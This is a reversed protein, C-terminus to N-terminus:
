YTDLPVAGPNLVLQSCPNKWVECLPLESRVASEFSAHADTSYWVKGTASDTYSYLPVIDDPLKSVSAVTYPLAYFVPTASSNPQTTQLMETYGQKIHTEVGYVPILSPLGHNQPMAYFPVSRIQKWWNNTVVGQRQAYESGKGTVGVSYVPEPLTLRPDSLDLSYMLQNYNYRPTIDTVNSFTNTYTGQFYILRGNDQDLFPLQTPNYFTYGGHTAIKKAYLWPGVPTDAESFWVEGLFSPSGYAQTTIMIWRNLYANWYVSGGDSLVRKNTDVDHLATIREDARMKGDKILANAQDEGLAMTNKKWGWVLHGDANRDLLTNKGEYRGGPQLCTFSEFKAADRVDAANAVVRVLPFAGMATSQFYLYKIGHDMAMFPHGEPRLGDGTPYTCVPVFVAKKDNFEALGDIAISMDHRVEAFNTYLHTEGKSSLTFLGGVWIPGPPNPIPIMPRSFGDAGVWYKLNVGQSPDLGGRGPLRSTAGSTAFQGLPYSPRQTDGFFWYIRNRYPTVEVTDQGMVKGDLLPHKLPTSTGTLISDRYIGGGTMRYLREAINVRQLRIVASTGAIVKLAIGRYGFSDKPYKYGPSSISFYISHGLLDPDNIAIVGNSDTYYRIDNVTRLEVLPVGRGTKSDRVTIKYYQGPSAGGPLASVIMVMAVIVPLLYIAKYKRNQTSIRDHVISM